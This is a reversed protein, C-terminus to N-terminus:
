KILHCLIFTLSILSSIGYAAMFMFETDRETELYPWGLTILFYVTIAGIAALIKMGPSM